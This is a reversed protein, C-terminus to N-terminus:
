RPYRLRRRPAVGRARGNWPVVGAIEWIDLFYRQLPSPPREYMRPVGSDFFHRRDAEAPIQAALTVPTGREYSVTEESLVM